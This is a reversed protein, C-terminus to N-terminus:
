VLACFTGAIRHVRGSPEGWAISCGPELFYRRVTRIPRNDAGSLGLRRHARPNGICRARIHKGDGEMQPAAPSQGGLHFVFGCCSLSSMVIEDARLSSSPVAIAALM